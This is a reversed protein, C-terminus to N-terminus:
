FFSRMKKRNIYFVILSLAVPVIMMQFMISYSMLLSDSFLNLLTIIWGGVIPLLFFGIDIGIFSTNSAVGRREKPVMKMCLTQLLPQCIGYGFSAIAGSLLFMPLTRSFSILVFALAFLTIAPILVKDMGYRDALRGSVPRSVLLCIAYATFFLGIQEVGSIEGYILIFTQICAQAGALFFIMVTPVLAEAAIFNRMSFRFPTKQEKPETKILLVMTVCSAALIVGLVFVGMYGFHEQISLGISPGAAMALAQGLSFIGIGSAFKSAPLAQSVMTMSVPAFFGIGLGQILRGFVLVSINDSIFYFIYGCLIVSGAVACLRKLSYSTTAPGVVPRTFLAALPFVSAVFGVTSASAGLQEVYHPFLTNMMFMGFSMLANVLMMQIFFRTWITEGAVRVSTKGRLSIM